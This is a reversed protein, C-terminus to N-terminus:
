LVIETLKLRIEPLENKLADDIIEWDVGFYHHVLKNRMGVMQRWPIEPHAKKLDESINRSAEGIIELSKVTARRLVEDAVITEIGAVACYKELFDM